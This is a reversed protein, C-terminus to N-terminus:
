RAVVFHRRMGCARFFRLHTGAGAMVRRDSGAESAGALGSYRRPIDRVKFNLPVISLVRMVLLMSAKEEDAHSYPLYGPTLEADVYLTLSFFSCASHPIFPLRQMQAAVGPPAWAQRACGVVCPSFLRSLRRGDRRSLAGVGRAGVCACFHRRCFWTVRMSHLMVHRVCAHMIWSGSAACGGSCAAFNALSFFSGARVFFHSVSHLSFAFLLAGTGFSPGGSFARGSWLHGHMVGARVLELFLYLPDQFKDNVRAGKIAGYMARALPSHTHSNLLFRYM